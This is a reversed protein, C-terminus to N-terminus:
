KAAGPPTERASVHNLAIVWKGAIAMFAPHPLIKKM